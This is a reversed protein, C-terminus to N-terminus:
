NRPLASYGTRDRIVIKDSGPRTFRYSLKSTAFSVSIVPRLNFAFVLVNGKSGYVILIDLRVPILFNYNNLRRQIKFLSLFNTTEVLRRLRRYILMRQKTFNQSM